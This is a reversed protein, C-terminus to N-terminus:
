VFSANLHVATNAIGAIELDLVSLRDQDAGVFCPLCDNKLRKLLEVRRLVDPAKLGEAVIWPGLVVVDLSAGHIGCLDADHFPTELGPLAVQRPQGCPELIAGINKLAEEVVACCM